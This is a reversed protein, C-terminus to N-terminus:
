QTFELVSDGNHSVVNLHNPEAITQAFSSSDGVLFSGNVSITAAKTESLSVVLRTRSYRNVEAVAERLPTDIFILQGTTWAEVSELTPTDVTPPGTRHFRAREGRSIVTVAATSKLPLVNQSDSPAVAVQGDVLTVTLPIDVTEDRRVLFSTGTAIVKRDGATVIFPRREKPDQKAVHFYAEGYKLIVQRADNNYRVWVRSNTNLQVISGDALSVTRQEGIDTSIGSLTRYVIYSVAILALCVAATMLIPWLPRPSGAYPLRASVNWAETALDFAEEHASTEALWRKLDAELEPTRNPGHLRIVWLAAEARIRRVDASAGQSEVAPSM